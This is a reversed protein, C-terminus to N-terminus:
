DFVSETSVDLRDAVLDFITANSTESIVITAVGEFIIQAQNIISVDIM